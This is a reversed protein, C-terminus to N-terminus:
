LNTEYKNLNTEKNENIERKINLILKEELENLAIRRLENIEKIPIFKNNNKEIKIDDIEFFTDGTKRIQEKIREEMEIKSISKSEEFESINKGFTEVAIKDNRDCLTMKMEENENLILTCFIKRKRNEKHSIRQVEKILKESVTKYIKDNPRIKGKIRGIIVTQGAKATKINKKNIDM